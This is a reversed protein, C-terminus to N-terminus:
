VENREDLWKKEKLGHIALNLKKSYPEQLLAEKELDEIRKLLNYYDTQDM